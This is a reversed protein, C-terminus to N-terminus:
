RKGLQSLPSYVKKYGSTLAALDLDSAPISGTRVETAERSNESGRGMMSVSTKDAM